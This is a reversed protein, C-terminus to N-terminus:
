RYLAREDLTAIITRYRAGSKSFARSLLERGVGSSQQPPSVFFVSHSDELTGRRYILSM